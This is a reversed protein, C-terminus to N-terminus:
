ETNGNRLERERAVKGAAINLSNKQTFDITKEELKNMMLKLWEEGDDFIYVHKAFVQALITLAVDEAEENTLGKLRSEVREYPTMESLKKRAM